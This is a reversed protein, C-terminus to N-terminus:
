IEKGDKKLIYIGDQFIRKDRGRIKTARELNAAAQGAKEKDQSKILINEKNIEIEVGEPISAERQIKEGLFNKIIVKKGEIKITFPFHGFCIKLNYEFPKQVGRVMNRLHSALSNMLKKENKTAKECFIVLKNEERKLNLKGLNFERKLEGLPGKVLFEGDNIKIEIEQPIEIEQILTRKMKIFIHL